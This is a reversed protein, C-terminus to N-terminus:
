WCCSACDRIWFDPLASKGTVKEAKCLKYFLEPYFRALRGYEKEHYFPCFYDGSLGFTKYVPNRPIGHLQMYRTKEHDKVHLIPFATKVTKRGWKRSEPFGKYLKARVSSDHLSIGLYETVEDEISNYYQKLPDLKLIKRCWLARISPWFKYKFLHEYFTVKPKLIQLQKQIGLQNAVDKLYELTDPINITSDLFVVSFDEPFNKGTVLKHLMVTSDHGGSWNIVHQM